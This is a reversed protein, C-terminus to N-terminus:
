WNAPDYVNVQLDRDEPNDFWGGVDPAVIISGTPDRFIRCGWGVEQQEKQHEELLARLGPPLMKLDRQSLPQLKLIDLDLEGRIDKM